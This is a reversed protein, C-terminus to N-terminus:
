FANFHLACVLDGETRQPTTAPRHHTRSWVVHRGKVSQLLELNPEKASWTSTTNQKKIRKVFSGWSQFSAKLEARQRDRDQGIRGVFHCDQCLFPTFSTIMLKVEIEKLKRASVPVHYRVMGKTDAARSIGLPFSFSFPGSPVCNRFPLVTRTIVIGFGVTWCLPHHRM